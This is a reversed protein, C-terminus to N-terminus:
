PELSCSTSLLYVSVIGYSSVRAMDIGFVKKKKQNSHQVADHETNWQKVMGDQTIINYGM